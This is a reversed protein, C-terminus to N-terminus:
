RVVPAERPALVHETPYRDILERWGPGASFFREVLELTSEPYCEEYRGDLSVRGRGYVHWIVLEGWNFPVAINGGVGAGRARMVAEVPFRECPVSERGAADFRLPGDRAFLGHVHFAAVLLMAAAFVGRAVRDLPRQDQEGEFFERGPEFLLAPGLAAAAIAFFPMHRMHRLAMVLVVVLVLVPAAGLGSVRRRHGLAAALLILVLLWFAYTQANWPMPGWEEVGPRKMTVARGLYAWYRLGYPNILTLLLAGVGVALLRPARRPRGLGGIGYLALLGFGALFGGHLNAWVPATAPIVLLRRTGGGLREGELCWLWAAFLVYSFVQARPAFGYALVPMALATLGLTPLYPARHLRATRVVLAVTALGFLAKQLILGAEGSWAHVLYFVVGSLWEHDIWEPLTPTYAFPDSRPMRGRELFLRGVAMRGWIDPDGCRFCLRRFFFAATMLTAAAKLPTWFTRPGPAAHSM